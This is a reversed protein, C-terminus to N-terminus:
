ESESEGRRVEINNVEINNVVGKLGCVTDITGFARSYFLILYLAYTYM